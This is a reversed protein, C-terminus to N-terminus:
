YFTDRPLAWRTEQSSICATRRGDEYPMLVSEILQGDGLQYARKM